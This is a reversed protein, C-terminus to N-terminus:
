AEELEGYDDSIEKCLQILKKIYKKEYESANEELYEIGNEYLSDKCDVLDNYTNEFRCYSMNPM